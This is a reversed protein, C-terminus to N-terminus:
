LAESRSRGHIIHAVHSKSIGFMAAVKRQSLRQAAAYVARVQQNSLKVHAADEGKRIASSTGHRVADKQNDSRTGWRLNSVSNNTRTRDPDHCAEMGVPKPGVFAELVLQHILRMVYVGDNRRIRIGLYGGTDYVPSMQKWQKAYVIRKARKGKIRCSWLRGSSDVAYGVHNPCHRFEIGGVLPFEPITEQCKRWPASRFYEAYCEKCNPMLAFSPNRRRYFESVPKVIGCKCCRKKPPLTLESM